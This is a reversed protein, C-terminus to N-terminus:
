HKHMGLWARWRDGVTPVEPCAFYIERNIAMLMEVAQLKADNRNFTGGEHIYEDTLYDIAHGLKELAHGAGTGIRRRRNTQM